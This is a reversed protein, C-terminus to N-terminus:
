DRVEVEIWASAAGDPADCGHHVPGPMFFPRADATRVLLRHRGPRLSEPLRYVVRTRGDDVADASEVVLTGRFVLAGDRVLFAELPLGHREDGLFDMSDDQTGYLELRRGDFPTPDVADEDHWPSGPHDFGPLVLEEVPAATIARARSGPLRTGANFERAQHVLRAGGDELAFSTRYTGPVRGAADPKVLRARFWDEAAKAPDSAFDKREGPGLRIWDSAVITPRPPPPEGLIRRGGMRRWWPNADHPVFPEFEVDLKVSPLHIWVPRPGANVVGWPGATPAFSLPPLTPPVVQIWGPELRLEEELRPVDIPDGAILDELAPSRACGALLLLAPLGRM